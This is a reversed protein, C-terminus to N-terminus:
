AEIGYAKLKEWLTKRSIGLMEAARTKNWATVGLINLIHEKEAEAAVDSLSLLKGSNEKRLVFTPLDDRSIVDSTALTVTREIVNELERVNGPFDHSMISELAEKSFRVTRGLRRGYRELFFAALAPIDERRERLPPLTIPIVNLRYFLDERFRGAKVEDELSKNTAAILRVDVKISETGGIREITREQLM